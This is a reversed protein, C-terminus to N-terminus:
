LKFIKYNETTAQVVKETREPHTDSIFLQGLGEDTVLKVIQSVRNEDLKDFVDDLLLIPNVKKMKKIFDYQALKLAVLFSKQQGQSSFKKVPYGSIYFKLDDKHTGATSYQRQQDKQLHEKLLNEFGTKLLQSKLKIAVDEKSDSISAYREKFIPEFETLFLQRKEFILNGNEILEKDYLELQEPQFNRNAAFQKLLANRQSLAKKYRVWAKLFDPDNQSIIGDMFKRRLDSGELILDRDTPSIIVVPILGIHEQLREYAKGNRKIIKKKGKQASVILREARDNKRFQGDVVFFDNKHRINQSTVPNFYSKGFALLYISDLVNTKGVGNPGVLCNIKADFDFNESEFNKFNILSLGELHM